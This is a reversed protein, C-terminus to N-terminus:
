NGKNKNEKILRGSRAFATEATILLKFVLNHNTVRDAERPLPPAPIVKTIPV